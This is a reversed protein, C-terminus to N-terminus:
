STYLEYATHAAHISTHSLSLSLSLGFPFYFLLFFLIVFAVPPPPWSQHKWYTHTSHTTGPSLPPPPLLRSFLGSICTHTTYALDYLSRSPSPPSVLPSPLPPPPSPPSLTFIIGMLNSFLLVVISKTRGEREEEKGEVEVHECVSGGRREGGAGSEREEEREVCGREFDELGGM